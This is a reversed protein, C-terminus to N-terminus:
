YRTIPISEDNVSVTFLSHFGALMRIETTNDSYSWGIGTANNDSSLVTGKSDRIELIRDTSLRISCDNISSVSLRNGEFAVSVTNDSELVAKGDKILSTGDVLMYGENNIVLADGEFTYGDCSIVSNDASTRIYVTNGNEFVLKVFDNYQECVYEISKDNLKHVNIVSVIKTENVSETAFWVRQHVPMNVYNGTPTYAIGDPGSFKDSFGAKKINEPYVMDAELVAQNQTIVAGKSDPKFNINYQANLWWEFSHKDTDKAKLDDIIVFVDPRLYIIQRNARDLKNDYISYGSANTYYDYADEADGSTLDFSESTIFNTVTGNAKSNNYPQGNGGDYTIANHAYTKRTYALDFPSHFYDYYGSDIALREGFAHIHFSNQDPHNHSCSGYESARFYLSIRDNDMIDSHMMVYGSDRFHASQPIDSPEKPEIDTGFADYYGNSENTQANIAIGKDYKWKGYPNPNWTLTRKLIYAAGSDAGNGYSEDGFEMSTYDFTSYFVFKWENKHVAANFMDVIGHTRLTHTLHRHPRYYTWYAYGNAYSGDEYGFPYGNLGIFYPLYKEAIAKLEPSKDALALGATICVKMHGWGHSVHPNYEIMYPSDKLGEPPNEMYIVRETLMAEVQAKETESLINYIWDYAITSNIVITNYSQDNAKYSTAGDPNGKWTTINLLLKKATNAYTVDQTILYALACRYMQNCAKTVRSSVSSYNGPDGVAPSKVAADAESIIGDFIEKSKDEKLSRLWEMDNDTFMIRPHGSQALKDVVFSADPVPHSYADSRVTFRKAEKWQSVGENGYFRVSWWYTGPTFECPFSYVNRFIGSAYYAVNKLEKDKAVILDYGCNETVNEWNFAPPNQESIYKHIPKDVYYNKNNSTLKDEWNYLSSATTREAYNVEIVPLRVEKMTESGKNGSFIYAGDSEFYFKLSEFDSFRDAALSIEYKEFDSNGNLSASGIQEGSTGDNNLSYIRVASGQEGSLWLNLKLGTIRANKEHYFSDGVEFLLPTGKESKINGAIESSPIEYDTKEDGNITYIDAVPMVVSSSTRFYVKYNNTVNNDASTVEYNIFDVAGDSETVKVKMSNDAEFTIEPFDELTEDTLIFYEFIDPSFEPFLRYECKIDNLYAESKETFYSSISYPAMNENWVYARTYGSTNNHKFPFTIFSESTSAYVTQTYIDSDSLVGDNNYSAIYVNIKSGENSVSLSPVNLIMNQGAKGNFTKNVSSLTNVYFEPKSVELAASSSGYTVRLKPATSVTSFSSTGNNILAVTLTKRNEYWASSVYPTVDIYGIVTTSTSSLNIDSLMGVPKGLAPANSYSVSSASWNNDAEYVVIEGDTYDSDSSFYMQIRVQSIHQSSSISLNSLDFKYFLIEKTENYPAVTYARGSSIASEPSASSVFGVEKLTANSTAGLVGSFMLISSLIAILIVASVYKKM